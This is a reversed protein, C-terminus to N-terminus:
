LYMQIIKQNITSIDRQSIKPPHREIEREFQKNILYYTEQHLHKNFALKRLENKRDERIMKEAEAIEEPSLEINEYYEMEETVQPTQEMKMKKQEIKPFPGTDDELNVVEIVQVDDNIPSQACIGNNKKKFENDSLIHPDINKNDILQSVLNSVNAVFHNSIVQLKLVRLIIVISFEKSYRVVLIINL